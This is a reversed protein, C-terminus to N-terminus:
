WRVVAGTANLKLLTMPEKVSAPDFEEGREEALHELFGITREMNMKVPKFTGYARGKAGVANMPFVIVGDVVKVFVENGSEDKVRMWCGAKPCVASIRGEIALKQNSYKKPDKALKSIEVVDRLKAGEGYIRIPLKANAKSKDITKRATPVHMITSASLTQACILSTAVLLRLKM